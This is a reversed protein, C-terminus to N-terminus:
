RLGVQRGERATGLDAWAERWVEALNCARPELHMPAAYGRVEDYLSHLDDQAKQVRGLLSLAEPQGQLRLCLMELCAQSRQLANRGEHALGAVMEGIAALREAQLTKKQAEELAATREEVRKELEDRARRLAEEARQREARRSDELLTHYRCQLFAQGLTTLLDEYVKLMAASVPHELRAQEWVKAASLGLNQALQELPQQEPDHDFVQGAVLAGLRQKGLVLPVAFHALGSGDQAQVVARKKLADAVCTCPRVPALAFPCEGAGAPQRARLLEWLPRPNLCPGLLRGDADVLAVALHMALAYKELGEQWAAPDLLEGWLAPSVEVGPSPSAGRVEQGACLHQWGPGEHGFHFMAPHLVEALIELSEVLRPGPRNLYQNGDALYVRRDRVARLDRWGPRQTLAAM